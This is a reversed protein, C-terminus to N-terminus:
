YRFVANKFRLDIEKPTEGDMRTQALVLQLSGLSVDIDKELSFKVTVNETLSLTLFDNDLVGWDVPVAQYTKYLLRIARKREGRLNLGLELSMDGVYMLPLALTEAKEIIIGDLDVLWYGADGAATNPLGRTLGVRAARKEVFIKLSGPFVKYLFIRRNKFHSLLSREVDKEDLGFFNVGRLNELVEEDSKECSGFQTKCSIDKIVFLDTEFLAFYFGSVLVVTLALFLFVNRWM